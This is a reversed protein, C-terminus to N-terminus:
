LGNIEFLIVVHNGVTVRLLIKVTGINEEKLNDFSVLIMNQITTNM